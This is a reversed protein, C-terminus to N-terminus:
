HKRRGPLWFVGASWGSGRVDRTRRPDGGVTLIPRPRAREWHARQLRDHGGVYPPTSALVQSLRGEQAAPDPLGSVDLAVGTAREFRNKAGDFETAHQRALQLLELVVVEPVIVRNEEDLAYASLAAFVPGQLALNGHFETTDIVVDM